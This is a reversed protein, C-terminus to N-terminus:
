LCIERLRDLFIGAEAPSRLFFRARTSRRKGVAVTIGRMRAFVEEDTTDDGLYFLLWPGKRRSEERRLIHQIAGWKGPHTEPLFEWVMKGRLFKLRPFKRLLQQIVARADERHKRSAHRYHVAVTAEKAEVWIGPCESLQQDLWQRVRRMAQREQKSALFLRKGNPSTLVSGHAGAYWIGRLGVRLKLDSLRRGSIVGVLVGRSALERLRARVRPLLRVQSPTATIPALTGDLDTFLALHRARRVRRAAGEWASLLHKPPSLHAQGAKELDFRGM